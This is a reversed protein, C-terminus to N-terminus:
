IVDRGFFPHDKMVEPLTDSEVPVTRRFMSPYQPHLNTVGHNLEWPKWKMELWNDLIGGCHSFHQVKQKVRWTPLAYSFHHILFKDKPLRHESGSQVERFAKFCIRPKLPFAVLPGSPDPPDVTWHFSRWYTRWTGRVFSDDNMRSLYRRLYLIHEPHYVEDWDVYFYHTAGPINEKVFTLLQVMEAFENEEDNDPAEIRRWDNVVLTIKNDPDPFNRLIEETRDLEVDPGNWPRTSLFIVVNEVYDYISRLSYPLYLEANFVKYAACLSVPSTVPGPLPSVSNSTEGFEALFEESVTSPVSIKKEKRWSVYARGGLKMGTDCHSNDGTIRCTGQRMHWVLSNKTLGLRWGAQRVLESICHDNFYLPVSEPFGGVQEFVDRRIIMCSGLAMHQYAHPPDMWKVEDSLRKLEDADPPSEPPPGPYSSHGIENALLPGVLGVKTDSEFHRLCRIDWEPSVLVDPNIFCIYPASSERALRNWLASLGNNDNTNDAYRIEIRTRSNSYITELCRIDWERSRFGVLCVCLDADGDNQPQEDLLNEITNDEHYTRAPTSADVGSFPAERRDIRGPAGYNEIYKELVGQRIATEREEDYLACMLETAARSMDQCRDDNERCWELKERLDSFDAALPVYHEWPVPSEVISEWAPPAMLVLSNSNLSWPLQSAVANGDVVILYKYALLEAPSLAPRSFGHRLLYQRPEEDIQVFLSFGVDVLDDEKYRSVLQYRNAQLFTIQSVNDFGEHPRMVLEMVQAVSRVNLGFGTSAGRWVARDAKESWTRDSQRVHQGYHKAGVSTYGTLPWLISCRAGSPRFYSFTPLSPHGFPCDHGNLVLLFNASSPALNEVIRVFETERSEHPRFFGGRNLLERTLRGTQFHFGTGYSGLREEIIEASFTAQSDYFRGM